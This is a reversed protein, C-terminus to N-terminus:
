RGGPAEAISIWRGSVFSAGGSPLFVNPAAIEEAEAARKMGITQAIKVM